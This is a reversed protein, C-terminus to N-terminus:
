IMDVKFIKYELCCQCDKCKFGCPECKKNDRGYKCRIRFIEEALNDALNSLSSVM